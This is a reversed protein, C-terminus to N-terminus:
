FKYTVSLMGFDVDRGGNQRIFPGAFFHSYGASISLNRSAQWALTLSFDTGVFRAYATNGQYIVPGGPNYIGDDKSQRWYFDCGVDVTWREAPHLRLGPHVDIFNQPGLLSAETFYNGRPFLPNLTQLSRDNLDRDGSAIAAKLGLRPRGRLAPWNYGHDTAVTWANIDGGDFKGFQYLMEHNFDWSGSEGYLRAGVSHREERGRGQAFRAQPNSLGLYYLDLKTGKLVPAPMTTYVGWFWLDNINQDDLVGRDVEVPSGFFADASLGDRRYIWRVADFTRRNNTGERVSVLRESGFSLEQRGIRLTHHAHWKLDAFIQQINLENEDTVRPGGPRGDEYASQLQGFFRLWGTPRYDAHLLYRQMLYANDANSHASFFENAYSEFRLRAEGGLSLHGARGGAVPVYKLPDWLDTRLAPDRLFVYDEDYRLSKLAPRPEEAHLAQCVVGVALAFVARIHPLPRM